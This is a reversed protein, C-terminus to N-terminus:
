AAGMEVARAAIGEILPDDEDVTSAAGDLDAARVDSTQTRMTSVTRLRRCRSITTTSRRARIRNASPPRARRSKRWRCTSPSAARRCSKSRAPSFRSSPAVPRIRGARAATSGRRSVPAASRTSSCASTAIRRACSCRWRTSRFAARASGAPHAARDRCVRTGRRAGLLLRRRRRARSRAARPRRVSYRRLAALDSEDKQELIEERLGLTRLRTLRPSMASRCPSSRRARARALLAKRVARARRRFRDARRAPAAGSPPLRSGSASATRRCCRRTAATSSHPAISPARPTSSSTSDSSCRRSIRARRAAPTECRRRPRGVRPAAGPDDARARAPLRAHRAVPAFYTSVATACRTSRRARRSRKRASIPRRRATRDRPSSRRRVPAARAAGLSFRHLGITAGAEAAIARALDDAAGRSAAVIWVDGRGSQERM